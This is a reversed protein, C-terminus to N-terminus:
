DENFYVPSEYLKKLDTELLETVVYVATIRGAPVLRGSDSFRDEKTRDAPQFDFLRVINPHKLHQLLKIEALLYGLSYEIDKM